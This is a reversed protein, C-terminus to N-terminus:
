PAPGRGLRANELAPGSLVVCGDGLTFHLRFDRGAAAPPVEIWDDFRSRGARPDVAAVLDPSPLGFRAVPVITLPPWFVAEVKVIPLRAAFCWGSLHM